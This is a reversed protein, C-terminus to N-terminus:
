RSSAIANPFLKEINHIVMLTYRHNHLPQASNYNGVHRWFDNHDDKHAQILNSAMIWTGIHVNLCGDDRLQQRTIHYPSLKSLWQENIQMPGIDYSQNTNRVEEGVHGGETKLIGYILVQPVHYYHSAHAICSSTIPRHEKYEVRHLRGGQRFYVFGDSASAQETYASSAHHHHHHIHHYAMAENGLQPDNEQTM